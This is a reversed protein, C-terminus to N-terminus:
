QGPWLEHRAEVAALVDGLLTQVEPSDREPADRTLVGLLSLAAETLTLTSIRRAAREELIRERLKLDDVQRKLARIEEQRVTATKPKPGPKRKPVAEGRKRARYRRAREAEPSARPKPEQAQVVRLTTRADRNGTV